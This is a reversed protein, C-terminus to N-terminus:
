EGWVGALIEEIRKQAEAKLMRVGELAKMQRDLKEVIQRQTDINGLYPIPFKRMYDSSVKIMSPTGGEPVIGFYKRGLNSNFLYVAYKPIIKSVDFTVRTLLDPFVIKENINNAIAALAVLEKTNGRSYFFDGNRIFFRDLDRRTESTLKTEKTDITGNKLCSLALVKIDGGNCVPSWGNKTDIVADGINILQENHPYEIIIQYFEEIREAGEIIQKQKEIKEVIENQVELHPFPIKFKSLFDAGAENKIGGAKEINVTEQFKESRLVLLLYKPNFETQNISYVQYHTSCVLDSPSLAMAGQHVNIKSTVLDGTEAKYLDMGTERKERLHIKGDSFSIKEVVDFDGQFDDKKIKEYKPILLEGLEINPYQFGKRLLEELKKLKENQEIIKEGLKRLYERGMDMQLADKPDFSALIQLATKPEASQLEQYRKEIKSGNKIEVGKL